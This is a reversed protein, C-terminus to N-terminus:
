RPGENQCTADCGDGARRNGDDCQEGESRQLEGDGCRPGLACAATCGNYSDDNGDEGEDCEEFSSQVEGDGCYPPEVCGPACGAVGFAYVSANVGDDCLEDGNEVGDGCYPGRTRCDPGCKGYEGTNEDAGDDCLEDGAVVGDGCESSCESTTAFFGKLTLWYNSACTHREAQFVAIEYINGDELGWRRANQASIVFSDEEREHIGGLDLALHGNVYVFVDDDGSFRLEPPPDQDASYEFWYRVESTFHFNHRESGNDDCTEGTTGLEDIPFFGRTRLAPNTGRIVPPRSGDHLMYRSDFVYEDGGSRFTADSRFAGRLLTLEKVVSANLWPGDIYWQHFTDADTTTDTCKDWDPASPVQTQDCRVDAYVPKNALSVTALAKGNFAKIGFSEGERGLDGGRGGVAGVARVIGPDSGRPESQAMQFDAHSAEFDRVVVPIQLSPPAPPLRCTFGEEVECEASCGDGDRVNGDDCQEGGFTLGDGCLSTCPGLSCDPEIACLPTCGDGLDHNGDDCREAGQARGDGCATPECPENPEPCHFGTELECASSCGDDDEANGDDCDEFGVVLGDGCEAAECPLGPFACAWGDEVLCTADCGDGEAANGDDCTEDGTVRGDSCEVTSICPEGPTPCVYNGELRCTGTCGDGSAANGDDCQESVQNQAGDGCAPAPEDAGAAGCSDEGGCGGEGRPGGGFAISGGVGASSGARGSMAGGAGGDRAPAGTFEPNGGCNVMAQAVLGVM